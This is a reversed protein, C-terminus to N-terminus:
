PNNTPARLMYGNWPQAIVPDCTAVDNMLAQVAAGQETAAFSASSAMGEEPSQWFNVWNFNFSAEPTPTFDPAEVRFWYTSSPNAQAVAQVAPLFHDRLVASLDQRSKGENFSCLQNTLYYPGNSPDFSTPIPKPVYANFGFRNVGTEAGCELVGPHAADLQAQSDNAVYATWGAEMAAKDAWRLVWLGDFNPDEWGSPVYGFVAVPTHSLGDNIENWGKVLARFNDGSWNPGNKCWLYEYYADPESPSADTTELTAPSVAPVEIEPPNTSTQDSCGFLAATLILVVFRMPNGRLM